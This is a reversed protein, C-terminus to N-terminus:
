PQSPQKLRGPTGDTKLPLPEFDTVHDIRNLRPLRQLIGKFRVLQYALHAEGAVAYDEEGLEAKADAIGIGWQVPM